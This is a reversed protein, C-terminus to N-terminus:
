QTSLLEALLGRIRTEIADRIPGHPPDSRIKATAPQPSREDL